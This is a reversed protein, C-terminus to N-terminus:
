RSRTFNKLHAVYHKWNNEIAAREEPTTQRKVKAPTGVVFSNKPIQTNPTVVTGAAILSGSGIICNDLLISGMGILCDSEIICGHLIARHGVVVNKGVITASLDATMHCIAGDQISTNEGIEIKGMDGRLVAGPWVSAYKKVEVEGIITAADHVFACVDIKPTHTLFAEIM